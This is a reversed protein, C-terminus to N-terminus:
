NGKIELWVADLNNKWSEEYMRARMKKRVLLSADKDYYDDLFPTEFYLSNVTYPGNKSREDSKLGVKEIYNQLRYATYPDLVYKFEFRDGLYSEREWKM